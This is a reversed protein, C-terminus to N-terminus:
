GEHPVLYAIYLDGHTQCSVTLDDDVTADANAQILRLIAVVQLDDVEGPGVEYGRNKSALDRHASAYVHEGSCGCCCKDALGAYVSVVQSPQISQLNVM